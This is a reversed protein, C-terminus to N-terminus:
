FQKLAMWLRPDQNSVLRLMVREAVREKLGPVFPTMPPTLPPLPM